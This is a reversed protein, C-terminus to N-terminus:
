ADDTDMKDNYDDEDEGDDDSTIMEDSSSNLDDNSIMCLERNGSYPIVEGTVIDTAYTGDGQFTVRRRKRARSNRENGDTNCNLSHTRRISPGPMIYPGKLTLRRSQVPSDSQPPPLM